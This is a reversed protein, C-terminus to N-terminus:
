VQLASIIAIPKSPVAKLMAAACVREWVSTSRANGTSHRMVFCFTPRSRVMTFFARPFHRDITRLLPKRVCFRSAARPAQPVCPKQPPRVRGFAGWCFFFRSLSKTKQSGRKEKKFYEIFYNETQKIGRDEGD